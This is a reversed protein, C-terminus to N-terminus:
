SWYNINFPQEYLLWCLAINLLYSSIFHLQATHWPSFFGDTYTNNINIKPPSLIHGTFLFIIM